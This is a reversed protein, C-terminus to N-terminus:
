NGQTSTCKTVLAKQGHIMSAKSPMAKWQLLPLNLRRCRLRRQWKSVKFVGMRAGRKDHRLNHDPAIAKETHRNKQRNSARLLFAILLETRPFLSMERKTVSMCLCFRVAFSLSWLIENCWSLCLASGRVVVQQNSCYHLNGLSSTIKVWVM